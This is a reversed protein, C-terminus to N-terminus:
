GLDMNAQCKTFIFQELINMSPGDSADVWWAMLDVIGGALYCAEMQRQYSTLNRKALDKELLQFVMERFRREVGYGSRRGVINRFVLRNEEMHTLLGPLFAFPRLQATGIARAAILTDRLDNLSESLLDDKSDFHLYFTSRGVDACACIEQISLDDWAHTTLLSLLAERLALRTKLIRRDPVKEASMTRVEQVIFLSIDTFPWQFSNPEEPLCM